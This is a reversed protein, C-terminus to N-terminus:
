ATLEALQEELKLKRLPRKERKLLKKTREVLTKQWGAQPEKEKKNSM